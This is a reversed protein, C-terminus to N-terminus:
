HSARIVLAKGSAALAASLTITGDDNFLIASSTDNTQTGATVTKISAAAAMGAFKEWRLADTSNFVIVHKPSFGFDITVATGDGTVTASASNVVGWSQQSVSATAM